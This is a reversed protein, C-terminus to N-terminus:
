RRTLLYQHRFRKYQSDDILGINHGIETLRADANDQRLLLRYESRSTLMRYPEQIDKTVLDDILTGIYSSSRPLELM